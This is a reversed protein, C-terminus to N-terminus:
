SASLVRRGIRPRPSSRIPGARTGPAARATPPRAATRTSASAAKSWAASAPGRIATCIPAAAPPFAVSDGRLLLAGKPLTDLRASLKERSVVGAGAATGAPRMAQRLSGGGYRRAAAAPMCRSPAKVAGPRTTACPAIARGRALWAGCFDHAAAGALSVDAGDNSLVDEYLRLVPPMSDKRVNDDDACARDLILAAPM